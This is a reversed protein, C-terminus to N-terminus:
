AWAVLYERSLTYIAGLYLVEFTAYHRSCGEQVCLVIEGGVFQSDDWLPLQAPYTFTVIGLRGIM